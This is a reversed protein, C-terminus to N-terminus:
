NQILQTLKKFTKKEKKEFPWVFQIATTNGRQSIREYYIFEKRHLPYLVGMGSHAKM